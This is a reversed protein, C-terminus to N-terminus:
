SHQFILYVTGNQIDIYARRVYGEGEKKILLGRSIVQPTWWSFTEPYNERIEMRVKWNGSKMFVDSEEPTFIRVDGDQNGIQERTWSFSRVFDEISSIPINARVMYVTSFGSLSYSHEIKSEAPLNPFGLRSLKQNPRTWAFMAILVVLVTASFYINRYNM